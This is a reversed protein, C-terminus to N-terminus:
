NELMSAMFRTKVLQEHDVEGTIAADGRLRRKRDKGWRKLQEYTMFQIAGNSIGILALTTGKWLGPLGETTAISWLGHFVGRYAGQTQSRTTYMRTKVVWLPNTAIASYVGAEVSAALHQAASLRKQPDQGTKRAKVM